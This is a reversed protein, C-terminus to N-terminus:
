DRSRRAERVRHIGKGSRYENAAGAALAGSDVNGPVKLGGSITFTQHPKHHEQPRGVQGPEQCPREKCRQQEPKERQDEINHRSKADDNSEGQAHSGKATLVATHTPWPSPLPLFSGLLQWLYLGSLRLRGIGAFGAFVRKVRMQILRGLFTEQMTSTVKFLWYSSVM